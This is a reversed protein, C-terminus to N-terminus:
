TSHCRRCGIADNLWFHDVPYLIYSHTHIHIHGILYSSSEKANNLLIEHLRRLSLNFHGRLVTRGANIDFSIGTLCQLVWAIFQFTM